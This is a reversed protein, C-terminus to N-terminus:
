IWVCRKSSRTIFIDVISIPGRQTTPAPDSTRYSVRISVPEARPSPENSIFPSVSGAPLGHSPMGARDCALHIKTPGNENQTAGDTRHPSLRKEGLGIIRM